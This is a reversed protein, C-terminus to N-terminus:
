KMVQRYIAELLKTIIGCDVKMDIIVFIGSVNAVRAIMSIIYTHMHTLEDM